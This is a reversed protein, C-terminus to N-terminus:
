AIKPTGTKHDGHSEVSVFLPKTPAFYKVPLMGKSVVLWLKLVHPPESTKVEVVINLFHPHFLSPLAPVSCGSFM